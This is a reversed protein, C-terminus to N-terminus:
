DTNLFAILAEIEDAELELNPMWTNPRVAAPDALWLRLFDPGAVYNTLNPGVPGVNQATTIGDHQHCIICGKAVFLIEGMEATAAASAKPPETVATQPATSWAFAAVSGAALATLALALAWGTRGRLWLFAGGGAVALAAVIGWLPNLWSPGAALRATAVGGAAAPEAQVTLPPMSYSGIRWAWEGATPFTLMAVFREENVEAQVTVSEGTQTHVATIPQSFTTIPPQGPFRVVFEIELPQGITVDEPWSELTVVQCCGGGAQVLAPALLALLVGLSVIIVFRINM